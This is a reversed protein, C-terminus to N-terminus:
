HIMRQAATIGKRIASGQYGAHILDSRLRELRAATFTIKADMQKQLCQYWKVSQSYRAIAENDKRKDTHRVSRRAAGERELRKARKEANHASHGMHVGPQQHKGQDAYSRANIHEEM